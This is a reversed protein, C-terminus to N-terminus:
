RGIQILKYHAKGAYKRINEMLEPRNFQEILSMNYILELKEPFLFRAKREKEERNLIAEMLLRAQKGVEYYNINLAYLAGDEVNALSFGFIPIAESHSFNMILRLSKPHMVSSDRLLWIIDVLRLSRLAREVGETSDVRMPLLSFGQKKCHSMINMVRQHTNKPNYILGIKGAGPFIARLSEMQRKLPIQLPIGFLNKGRDLGFNSPEKVMCFVKPIEPLSKMTLQAALPGIMLIADPQKALIKLSIKEERNSSLGSLTYLSYNLNNEELFGRLAKQYSPLRNSLIISVNKKRSNFATLLIFILLLVGSNRLLIKM